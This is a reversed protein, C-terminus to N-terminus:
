GSHSLNNDAIGDAVTRVYPEVVTGDQRVYGDVGELAPNGGDIAGADAIGVDGLVAMDLSDLGDLSIDFDMGFDPEFGTDFDAGAFLLGIRIGILIVFLFVSIVLWSIKLAGM